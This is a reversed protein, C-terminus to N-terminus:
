RALAGREHELVARAAAPARRPSRCRRAPRAAPRARAVVIVPTSGDAPISSTRRARAGCTARPGPAGAGLQREVVVREVEHQRTATICWMASARRRARSARRSPAPRAARRAADQRPGCGACGTSSAASPARAAPCRRPAASGPPRPARPGARRAARRHQQDRWSPSTGSKTGGRASPAPPARRAGAHLARRQQAAQARVVDHERDLPGRLVHVSTSRSGPYDRADRREAGTARRSRSRAELGASARPATSSSSGAAARARRRRARGGRCRSSPDGFGFPQDRQQRRGRASCQPSRGRLASTWRASRAPASSPTGDIVVDGPRAHARRVRAAARLGPAPRRRRACRSRRRDRVRRDVLAAASTAAAAARRRDLLAASRWRAARGRRRRPQAHRVPENGRRERVGDGLPAALALAVVLLSGHPRACRACAARRERAAAAIGAVASRRGGLLLLVVATARCSARAARGLHLSLRVDLACRSGSTTPTSRRLASSSRRPRRARPRQAAGVAVAPVGVAAAVNAILAPRARRASPGVAAVGAARRAAFVATYHTYM